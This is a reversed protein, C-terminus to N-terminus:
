CRSILWAPPEAVPTELPHHGPAWAYRRGTEPHISPSVTIGGRYRVDVGRGISARFHVDRTERFLIHQGGGASVQCVTRPLSGCRSEIEALTHDGGHRPDIDLALFGSAICSVGINSGPYRAWFDRIVEPNTIADLHGRGGPEENPIAPVKGRLPFVPWGLLGAYALAAALSRDATM